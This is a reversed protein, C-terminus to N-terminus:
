RRTDLTLSLTASIATLRDLKRRAASRDRPTGSELLAAVEELLQMMTALSTM